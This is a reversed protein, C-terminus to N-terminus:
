ASIWARGTESGLEKHNLDLSRPDSSWAAQALNGRHFEERGSEIEDYILAGGMAQSKMRLRFKECEVSKWWVERALKGDICYRM